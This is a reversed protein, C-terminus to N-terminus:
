KAPLLVLPRSPNDLNCVIVAHLVCPSRRLPRTSKMCSARAHRAFLARLIIALMVLHWRTAWFRSPVRPASFAPKSARITGDLHGMPWVKMFADKVDLVLLVSFPYFLTLSFFCDSYPPLGFTSDHLCYL